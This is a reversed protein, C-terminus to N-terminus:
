CWVSVTPRTPANATAEEYAHWSSRKWKGTEDVLGRRVPNRHIYDIAKRLTSEKRINRDYGAGEQWFRFSTHNPRDRITLESLMPDCDTTMQKKVRFSFPRKIPFLLRGIGTAGDLPLVLLPIHEPMLVYAVLEYRQTEMARDVAEALMERRSNLRLLQLRRYCSFTLEHAEGVADDHRVLKRHGLKTRM